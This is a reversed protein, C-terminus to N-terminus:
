ELFTITYDVEDDHCADLDLGVREAIFWYDHECVWDYYNSLVYSDYRYEVDDEYEFDVENDDFDGFNLGVFDISGSKAIEVFDEFSTPTYVDESIDEELSERLSDELYENYAEFLWYEEVMDYFKEELKEHLSQITADGNEIAEVVAECSIEESGLKRLAALEQDNVEVEITDESGHSCGGHSYGYFASLKVQIKAM